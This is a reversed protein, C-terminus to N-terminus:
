SAVYVIERTDPAVIVVQGDPAMFFEHDAYAPEVEVITTPVPTLVVTEPVTTGVALEFDVQEVPTVEVDAFVQRLEVQGSEVDISGTSEVSPAPVPAEDTVIVDSEGEIIVSDQALAPASFAAAALVVTSLKILTKM